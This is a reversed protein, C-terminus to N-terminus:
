VEEDDGLPQTEDDSESALEIDPTQLAELPGTPEHRTWEDGYGPGPHKWHVSCLLEHDSAWQIDKCTQVLYGKYQLYKIMRPTLEAQHELVKPLQPVDYVFLDTACVGERRHLHIKTMLAGMWFAELHGLQIENVYNLAEGVLDSQLTKCLVSLVEVADPSTKAVFRVAPEKVEEPGNLVQDAWKAAAAAVKAKCVQNPCPGGFPILMGCDSNKCCRTKLEFPGTTPRSFKPNLYKPM